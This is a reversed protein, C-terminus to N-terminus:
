DVLLYVSQQAPDRLFSSGHFSRSRAHWAGDAGFFQKFERESGARVQFQWVFAIVSGEPTLAQTESGRM